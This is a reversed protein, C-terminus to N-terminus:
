KDYVAHVHILSFNGYYIFVFNKLLQSSVQKDHRGKKMTVNNVHMQQVRASISIHMKARRASFHLQSTALIVGQLNQM